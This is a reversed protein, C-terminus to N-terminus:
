ARKRARTRSCRAACSTASRGSTAPVPAASARRGQHLRARRTRRGHRRRAPGGHLPRRGIAVVVKDVTVSQEGKPTPTSSRGRRGQRRRRGHSERRAPHRAGAEQLAQASGQGGAPRGDVPVAGDGRARRSRRRAPALRQRARPRHRRRRDRRAAEAGRRVRARGMFRRGAQRRVAAVETRMPTRARPSCWTSRRCSRSAATRRRTSSATARCCGATARCRRSARPRSCAAPHGADHRSSARRASRCRRRRRVGAGKAKIGHAAFESTRATIAARVIRAAGELSHLGREPLHRRLRLQRRLEEVRRHLRGHAREARRPDGCPYGAPGGGIVVVDFATDTM